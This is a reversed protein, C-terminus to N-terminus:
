PWMGFPTSSAPTRTWPRATSPLYAWACPKGWSWAAVPPRCIAASCVCCRPKGRATEGVIGVRDDRLLTYSFDRILTRGGLECGLHECSLIKKGLRSAVSKIELKAEPPAERVNEQLTEFRDIRGKAKTSRARAGRQIWSLETRYLSRQKRLAAAAMEERQAREELYGAYDTQYTQVGGNGVHFIRSFVRQLLYRDHTVCLLTGRYRILQEELWAATDLDIHNTPEDLLLAETPRCLVGALAVRM